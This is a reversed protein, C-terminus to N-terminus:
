ESLRERVFSRARRVGYRDVMESIQECISRLGKDAAEAFPPLLARRKLEDVLEKQRMYEVVPLGGIRPTLTQALDDLLAVCEMQERNYRKRLASRIWVGVSLMFWIAGGVALGSGIAPVFAWVLPWSSMVMEIHGQPDSFITFGLGVLGGSAAMNKRSM